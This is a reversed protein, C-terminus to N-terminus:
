SKLGAAEKERKKRLRQQWAKEEAKMDHGQSSLYNNIKGKYKGFQKHKDDSSGEDMAKERAEVLWNYIQKKQDATLSPIMDQYATYTINLVNYTMGDKVKEMQGTTLDKELHTLFVSHQQKLLDSKKDEETKVAKAVEDAQKEQKIAAVTLKSQDHIKNVAIYQGTITELVNYYTSSDTLGLTNVIKAARGKVVTKYEAEKQADIPQAGAYFNYILLFLLFSVPLIKAAASLHGSCKKVMVLLLRNM